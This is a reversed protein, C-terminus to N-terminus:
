HISCAGISHGRPRRCGLQRALPNQLRGTVCEQVAPVVVHRQTLDRRVGADGQLGHDVVEPVLLRQEPDGGLPDALRDFRKPPGDRRSVELSGRARQDVVVFLCAVEREARERDLLADRDDPGYERAPAPVVLLPDLV